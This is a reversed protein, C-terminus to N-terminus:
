YPSLELAMVVGPLAALVAEAALLRRGAAREGAESGERRGREGGDEEEVEVTEAVVVSPVSM